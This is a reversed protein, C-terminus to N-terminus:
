GSRRGQHHGSGLNGVRKRSHDPHDAQVTQMAGSWRLYSPAVGRSYRPKLRKKVRRRLVEHPSAVRLAFAVPEIRRSAVVVVTTNDQYPRRRCRRRRAAGRRDRRPRRGRRRRRAPYGRPGPHPHRRQRLDRRRGARAGAPPALPRDARDRRRDAGLAPFAPASRSRTRGASRAPPPWSTSRPRWRTTRTSSSSRARACWSCPATASASGNSARPGFPHRGAHLGHRQAGPEGAVRRDGCQRAGAGRRPAGAGRGLVDTPACSSSAPPSSALAGGAHGGMGDALVATLQESGRRRRGLGCARRTRRTAGRARARAPRMDLAM